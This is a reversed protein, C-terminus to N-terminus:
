TGALERGRDRAATIAKVFAGKTDLTDLTECAAATTGGKSTVTARLDGPADSTEALMATAGILTQRVLRRADEATFGLQLAADEMAEALYFLYAPGSGAVATAADMQEERMRLVVPGMGQFLREAFAEDGAIAGEGLSIATAAQGIIAPLNPMARIVRFGGGFESVIRRSPTGALISIVVRDSGALHHGVESALERLAQPKVALLVQARIGSLEWQAIQAMAESSSMSTRVGIKALEGRKIPDPEAVVCWEPNILSSKVAGAVIAKGMNGGGIVVLPTEM